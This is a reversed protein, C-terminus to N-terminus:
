KYGLLLKYNTGSLFPFVLKRSELAPRMSLLLQSVQFLSWAQTYKKQTITKDKQNQNQKRSTKQQKKKTTKRKHSFMLNPYTPFYPLDPSVQPLSFIIM